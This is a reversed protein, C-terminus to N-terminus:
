FYYVVSPLIGITRQSTSANGLNLIGGSYEASYYAIFLGVRFALQPYIYQYFGVKFNIGNVSLDQTADQALTFGNERYSPFLLLNLGLSFGTSQDKVPMVGSVGLRLGSYTKSGMLDSSSAPASWAFYKYGLTFAVSPGYISRKLYSRYGFDFSFDKISTSYESTKSLSRQETQSVKAMAYAFESALFMEKTLWLEGELSIGPSFASGQYNIAENSRTTSTSFSGLYPGFGLFGVNSKELESSDNQIEEYARHPRSEKQTLQRNEVATVKHLKSIKEGTNEQFVRGFSIQDEVNEVEVTGVPAMEVSIIEKLLPHRRITDVKSIQVLDGKKIGNISGIDLTVTDQERGTVAGYFPISKLSKKFAKKLITKLDSDLGDASAQFQDKFFLGGDRSIFIKTSVEIVKLNKSIDIEIYFDSESQTSTKEFRPNKALVELIAKQALDKFAGDVNDSIKGIFIKKFSLEVNPDIYSQVTTETEKKQSNQAFAFHSIALFFLFVVRFRFNTEM